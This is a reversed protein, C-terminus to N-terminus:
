AWSKRSTCAVEDVQREIVAEPGRALLLLLLRHARGLLGPPAGGVRSHPLLAPGQVLDEPVPAAHDLAARGPPGPNIGQTIPPM